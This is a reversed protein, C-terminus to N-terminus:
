AAAERLGERNFEAIEMPDVELVPAIKEMTQIRATARGLEIAV